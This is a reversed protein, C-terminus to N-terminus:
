SKFGKWKSRVVNGTKDMGDLTARITLASIMISIATGFGSMSMISAIAVPVSAASSTISNKLLAFLSSVGSYTIMGFGVAGIVRSIVSELLTAVIAWVLGLLMQM